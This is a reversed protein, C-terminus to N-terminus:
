PVIRPVVFAGEDTHAAAGLAQERDLGPRPLDERLPAAAPDFRAKAPSQEALAQELTRVHDLIRGLEACRADREAPSAEPDDLAALRELQDLLARDVSM